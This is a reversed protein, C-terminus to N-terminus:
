GNSLVGGADVHDIMVLNFLLFMMGLNTISIMGLVVWGM